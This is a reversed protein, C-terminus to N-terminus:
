KNRQSYPVYNNFDIEAFIDNGFVIKDFEEQPIQGNYKTYLMNYQTVDVYKQEFCDKDKFFVAFLVKPIIFQESLDERVPFNSDLYCNMYDLIDSNTEHYQFFEDQYNYPGIGKDKKHSPLLNNGSFVYYWNTYKNKENKNVLYINYGYADTPNIMNKLESIASALNELEKIDEEINKDNKYVRDIQGNYDDTLFTINYKEEIVHIDTRRAEILRSYYDSTTSEFYGIVTDDIGSVQMDSKATFLIGDKTKLLYEKGNEIGEENSPITKVNLVSAKINYEEEVWKMIEYESKVHDLACGVLLQIFAFSFFLVCIKKAINM